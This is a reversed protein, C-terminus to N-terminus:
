TDWSGEALEYPGFQTFCLAIHRGDPALEPEFVTPFVAEIYPEKSIRGYKADDWARELYELSPSIALIGTHPDGPVSGNWGTPVPLESLALNVKVAGSRSRFRKLDRVVEDSLHSDGVLERLTTVPHANSVVARARLVTGDGLEVGAARHVRDVFPLAPADVTLSVAAVEFTLEARSPM